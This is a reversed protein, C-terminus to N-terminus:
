DLSRSDRKDNNYEEIFPSLSSLEPPPADESGMIFERWSKLSQMQTACPKLGAMRMGHVYDDLVIAAEEKTIRGDKVSNLLSRLLYNGEDSIAAVPTYFPM